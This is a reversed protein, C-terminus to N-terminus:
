SKTGVQPACLMVHPGASVNWSQTRIQISTVPIRLAAPFSSVMSANVIYKTDRTCGITTQCSVGELRVQSQEIGSRSHRSDKLLTGVQGFRLTPQESRTLCLGQEGARLSSTVRTWGRRLNVTVLM